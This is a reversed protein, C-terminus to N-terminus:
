NDPQKDKIINEIVQMIIKDDNSKMKENMKKIDKMDNININDIKNEKKLLNDFYNFKTNISEDKDSKEKMLKYFKTNNNYKEKDNQKINNDNNKNTIIRIINNINNSRKEIRTKKNISITQFNDHFLLLM